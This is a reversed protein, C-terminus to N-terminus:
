IRVHVYKRDWLDDFIGGSQQIPCGRYMDDALEQLLELPELPDLYFDKPIGKEGLMSGLIAGAVAGVASSCGSHNVATVMCAEFDGRASLCAYLAGALVEPMTQCNLGQMDFLPSLDPKEAQDLAQALLKNVEATQPYERSFQRDLVEMTERTVKVLDKEGDWLTRSIIYALAGGTVFARPDGHTLAVVEAGLRVIEARSIRGPDYFMGVALAPGVAGPTNCQNDADEMTALRKQILIDVMRPETYRRARLEQARSVWCFNRQVQSGRQYCAWEREAIRVYTVYPQMKGNSQGYSQGMLLGDCTYAALQTHSCIAAIGNPMNVTNYGGLGSPGFELQIKQWSLDDVTYGLTDGVALGLLCGRFCSQKLRM